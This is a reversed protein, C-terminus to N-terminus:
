RRSRLPTRLLDALRDVAGSMQAWRQAIREQTARTVSPPLLRARWRRRGSALERLGLRAAKVAARLDGDVGARPAYRAREEALAVLRLGEAAPKSLAQERALRQAVVRPTDSPRVQVRYDEAAALVENWAERAALVADPGAATRLRRRRVAVRVLLPSLLLLVVALVVPAGVATKPSVIGRSSTTTDGGSQHDAPDFRNPDTQRTGEPGPALTDGAGSSPTVIGPRPAYPQEVRRADTLPTPDFPVWGIGSFYVEVWAHADDTQVVWRGDRLSGRTYGVAVRSPVGAVRLMVAMASAYQQCFGQKNTLFDVLANGSTGPKTSLSYVFGSDPRLFYDYIALTREYPTTAGEVVRDVTDRVQQPLDSPVRGWDSTIEADAVQPSARLQDESPRPDLFAETYRLNRTSGTRTFATALDAVYQWNGPLGALSVPLGYMPLTSDDYGSSVKFTARFVEEDNSRFTGSPLRLPGSADQGGDLRSRKWNGQRDVDDLVMQRIYFPERQQTTVEMVDQPNPLLLQNRMQTFPNLSTGGLTQRGRGNGDGEGSGVLLYLTNNNFGPTVLPVLVALAVAAVGIRKGSTRVPWERAEQGPVDDYPVPRGWRLVREHGEALLLVLYGSGALVFPFWGVGDFAVAAPVAYTALLVLGSVAPRRMGVAITDIVIAVLGTSAAALLDLGPTSPAPTALTRVDEFGNRLASEFERLSTPTPVLGLLTHEPTFAVTLYVFFVALALLPVLPAPARLRRAVLNVLMIVLVGLWAYTAWQQERFTSGIPASGLIAAVAAAVTMRAGVSM